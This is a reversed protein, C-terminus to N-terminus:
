IIPIVRHEIESSYERIKYEGSDDLIDDSTVYLIKWDYMEFIKNKEIYDRVNMRTYQIEKSDIRHKNKINWDKCQIFLIKKDRKLIIDIGDDKKGHNKGHPVTLYGEKEFHKCIYTEYKNGKEKKQENTLKNEKFSYKEENIKDYIKQEKRIKQELDMNGMKIKIYIGLILLPYAWWPINSLVGLLISTMDLNM